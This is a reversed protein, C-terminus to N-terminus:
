EIVEDARALLSQPVTLGLAKATKLNIVLEFKTPQEVPLEAPTAGKLIKDIFVAARRANDAPSAFYTMLGGRRAFAPHGSVTALHRRLGLEATQAGALAGQVILGDVNESAIAAFTADLENSRALFFPRIVIGLAKGALQIQELMSRSLPEPNFLAAIRSATPILESLLEVQKGAIEVAMSSLGTVNGGPRALSAVIGAGVPDAVYTMVIPLDGTAHSAAAVSSAISAVILDVKRNVLEAALGPLRGPDGEASRFELQITKGDVYGLDRLAGPLLRPIVDEGGALLVGIVPLKQAQAQGRGPMALMATALTALLTRRRM